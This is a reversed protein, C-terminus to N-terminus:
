GEALSKQTVHENLAVIDPRSRLLAVIGAADPLGPGLGEVVARVANLDEVTDVTVRLDAADLLTSVGLCRFQDPHTYVFSTVHIRDHGSALRDVAELVDARVVEVDLGRPLNRVLTTSVYDPQAPSAALSIAADILGPDLLPCDATLRVVLDAPHDGLALLFRSLVDDEPGRVCPVGQRACEAATADDARGTTTAVVVEDIQIASRAARVVWSLIPMGGLDALIKGPLRTSGGRAQIIAVTRM